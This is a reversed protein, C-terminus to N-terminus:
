RRCHEARVESGAAGAGALAAPSSSSPDWNVSALMNLGIIEFAIFGFLLSLTGLGGLYIPGIQADGFKGAWYNDVPKASATKRRRASPVGAYHPGACRCGHSYIRTNL